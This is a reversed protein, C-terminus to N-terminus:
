EAGKYIRILAKARAIYPSNPNQIVYNELAQLGADRAKEYRELEKLSLVQESHRSSQLVYWTVSGGVVSGLAICVIGILVALQKQQKQFEEVLEETIQRQHKQLEETLGANIQQRHKQLEETLGANIQQQHKQFEGTLEEAIQQRHKQLEEASSEAASKRNFITDVVKKSAAKAAEGVATTGLTKLTAKGAEKLAAAGIPTM